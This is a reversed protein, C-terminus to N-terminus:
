TTYYDKWQKKKWKIIERLKEILKKIEEHTLDIEHHTSIPKGWIQNISVGFDQKILFIDQKTMIKTKRQKTIYIKNQKKM